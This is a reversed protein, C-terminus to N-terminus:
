NSNTPFLQLPRWWESINFVFVFVIIDESHVRPTLFVSPGFNKTNTKSIESHHRGRCSNEFLEFYLRFESKNTEPQNLTM